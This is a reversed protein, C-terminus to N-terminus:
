GETSRHHDAVEKALGAVLTRISRKAAENTEERQIRLVETFRDVLHAHYGDYREAIDQVAERAAEVLLQTADAVRM